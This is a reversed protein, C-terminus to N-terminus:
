TQKIRLALLDKIEPIGKDVLYSYETVVRRMAELHGAPIPNGSHGIARYFDIITPQNMDFNIVNLINREMAAMAADSYKLGRFNNVTLPVIDVYKSSLILSCIAILPFMEPKRNRGLYNDRMYKSCIFRDFIGVSMYITQLDIDYTNVWEFLGSVHVLRLKESFEAPLKPRVYFDRQCQLNYTEIKPQNTSLFKGMFFSHNIADRLRIRKAPVLRLMQQVLDKLSDLISIISRSNSNIEYLPRLKYFIDTNCAELKWDPLGVADLDEATVPVTTLISKLVVIERTGKFVQDKIIFEYLICGLSWIDVSFDYNRNDNTFLEPPRYSLTCVQYSNAAKFPSLRKALGFDCIKVNQNSILINEPKLDRHIVCMDHMYAIGAVLQFAIDRIEAVRQEYPIRSYYSRLSEGGFSMIIEISSETCRIDHLDIINPHKLMRIINIERLITCHIDKTRNVNKFKKIAVVELTTTNEARYVSGFTGNGLPKLIKFM